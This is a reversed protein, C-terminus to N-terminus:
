IIPHPQISMNIQHIGTILIIETPKQINSSQLNNKIKPNLMPSTM